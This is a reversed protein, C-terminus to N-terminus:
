LEEQPSLYKTKPNSSTFKEMLSYTYPIKDRLRNLVDDSVTTRCFPVRKVYEQINGANRGYKYEYPFNGEENLQNTRNLTNPVSIYFESKKIDGQNFLNQAKLHEYLEKSTNLAPDIIEVKESLVERYVYEGDEKYNYLEDLKAKFKDM